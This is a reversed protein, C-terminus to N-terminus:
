LPTLTVEVRPHDRDLLLRSGDWQVIQRDNTLIGWKELADALAQCYNILDGAKRARYFLAECGYDRDVQKAVRPIVVAGKVWKTWRPNPLVFTRGNRRIVQNATKKTVPRGWVTFSVAMWRVHPRAAHNDITWKTERPHQRIGNPKNRQIRRGYDTPRCRLAAESDAMSVAYRGSPRLPEPRARM